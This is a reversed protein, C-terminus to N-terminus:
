NGQGPRYILSQYIHACAQGNTCIVDLEALGNSNAAVAKAVPDGQIAIVYAAYKAPDTLATKWEQQDDESIVSRLDRGADQVAGVHDTLSMMVPVNKPLEELAYALNAELTMRTTANVAAEQLVLPTLHMMVICNTVCLVMATPQWLTGILREGAARRSKLWVELREAALAAFVALAPLLEMGYRSNYYAHPWLQPIFIPVSSYAIAYIYFPLPIWLLLALFEGRSHAASEARRRVAIWLGYLAAAMLGFGTEWAAADLQATRTFFLASWGMNHWGRYHQGPPATRLEIQKASYPGRLFDLWDGEFHANYWFWLLPGIAVFVTFLVFWPTMRRRVDPVSRLLNWAFCLWIVAGIVWGDYRTFVQGLILLGALMMRARALTLDGQRLAAISEMAAVVSWIFLALFLAETMATTSLYLLNANLAYFTTAVLAWRMRMMRRALRWIGAVSAAYSLMSMPAAALGTQWMRMNMIFPLMLLHPLPLWVSGLQALGPWRADLIRRAVALHAVADGYLLLFSQRYCIYLAVFALVIGAAFFPYTEGPVAPSVTEPDVQVWIRAESQSGRNRLKNLSRNALLKGQPTESPRGEAPNPSTPLLLEADKGQEHLPADNRESKSRPM